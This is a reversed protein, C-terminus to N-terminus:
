GGEVLRSSHRIATQVSMSAGQAGPMSLNFVIDQNGEASLFRGAQLDFRLTQASSGDMEGTIGRGGVSDAELQFTSESQLVAVPADGSRDISELTTRTETIVTGRIPAGYSSADVSDTGSWSEGVSVTGEPLRAFSLQRLSQEIGSGQISTGGERRIRIMEGAPTVTLWFRSGAANERAQKAMDDLQSQAQSNQSTVDLQFDQIEARFRLSDATVSEVTRQLVMTTNVNTAAGMGPPPTVAAETDYRYTASEGEEARLELRVEQPATRADAGSRMDAASTTTPEVPPEPGPGPVVGFTLAALLPLLALSPARRSIPPM